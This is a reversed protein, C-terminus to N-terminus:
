GRPQQGLANLRQAVDLYGYDNAAVENYHEEARSLQGQAELVRGLRYNLANRTARDDPEAVRLAEQYNREALKPLHKAEFSLGLQHLAEVKLDPVDRLSQFEAIAADHEGIRALRIGLQLRVNEDDPRVNLRRRFEALEYANLKERLQRLKIRADEDEPHDDVRKSWAGIARHLRSIQVESHATLLVADDPNARLGRALTKEAEDLKNHMKQYDALELYLGIRDPQDDIQKRLREEPALALAKLDELEPAFSDPGSGGEPHKSLAEGLGSRAITANASLAYIQRKANDDSPALKRVREWCAIAKQWDENLEYVHAQYRLFDVDDGAQPQVSELSWRALSKIGLSIAAEALDRSVGIDWPNHSLAEECVELAHSWQGKAKATKIRLRTPQMRASALRGVKTPDNGFKRRAIGRLAQRYVLNDPVLKCADQYMQIAYDFNNRLAADNGYKFYTHAKQQRPNANLESETTM